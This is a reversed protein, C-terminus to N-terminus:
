RAPDFPSSGEAEPTVPLLIPTHTLLILYNSTAQQVYKAANQLGYAVLYRAKGITYFMASPNLIHLSFSSRGILASKKIFFLFIDRSM